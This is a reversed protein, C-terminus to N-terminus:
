AAALKMRRRNAREIVLQLSHQGLTDLQNLLRALSDAPETTRTRILYAIIAQRHIRHARRFDEKTDVLKDSAERLVKDRSNHAHADLGGNEILERIFTEQMGIYRAVEQITHWPKVPVEFDFWEQAVQQRLRPDELPTAVAPM